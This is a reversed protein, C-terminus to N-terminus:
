FFFSPFYRGQFPFLHIFIHIFLIHHKFSKRSIFKSLVTWFFKERQYNKLYTNLYFLSLCSSSYCSFFYNCSLKNEGISLKLLCNETSITLAARYPLPFHTCSHSFSQVFLYGEMAIAENIKFLHTSQMKWIGSHTIRSWLKKACLGSKKYISLIRAFRTKAKIKKARIAKSRKKMRWSIKM